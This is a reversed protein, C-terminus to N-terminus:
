SAAPSPSASGATGSGAASGPQYAIASGKVYEDWSRDWDTWGDAWKLRVETDKVIVPDGVKVIDYLWQANATSLNTCGHSVNRRGQDGTSWPAAHIYEGGWTLRLDWFVKTRYGGASAVPVGYTSSDFWEWENRSMVVMNGSSSPTATKGLSVPMTKLVKDDKTVTMQKTKNDITMVLKAGVTATM